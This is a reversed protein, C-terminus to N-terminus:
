VRGERRSQRPKKTPRSKAKPKPKSLKAQLTRSVTAPASRGGITTMSVRAGIRVTKAGRLRAARVVARGLRNLPVAVTLQQGPELTVTTAGITLTGTPKTTRKPGLGRVHRHRAAAATAAIRGGVDAYRGLADIRADGYYNGDPATAYVPFRPLRTDLDLLALHAVGLKTRDAKALADILLNAARAQEDHQAISRQLSPPSVEAVSYDDPHAKVAPRANAAQWVAYRLRVEEHFLTDFQKVIAAQETTMEITSRCGEYDPRGSFLDTHCVISVGPVKEDEIEGAYVAGGTFGECASIVSAICVKIPAAQTTPNTCAGIVDGVCTQIPGPQELLGACAPLPAPGCVIPAGGGTDPQKPDPVVQKPSGSSGKHTADGRYAVTIPVAGGTAIAANAYAFTCSSTAPSTTSPSLTCTPVPLAGSTASLDAVGSPASAGLRQDSDGVTATCAFPDGPSPGRNCTVETRTTRRRDEPDPDAPPQDTGWLAATARAQDCYPSEGGIAGYFGYLEPPAPPYALPPQRADTKRRLVLAGEGYFPRDYWGHAEDNAGAGNPTPAFAAPGCTYYAGALLDRGAFDLQFVVFDDPDYRQAVALMFTPSTGMVAASRRTWQASWQGVNPRITGAADDASSFTWAGLLHGDMDIGYEAPDIPIESGTAAVTWVPGGRAADTFYTPGVYTAPPDAGAAPAALTGLLILVIALRRM